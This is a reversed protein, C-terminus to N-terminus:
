KNIQDAMCNLIISILNNTNNYKINYMDMSMGMSENNFLVAKAM